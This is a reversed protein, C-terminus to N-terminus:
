TPGAATAIADTARTTTDPPQVDASSAAKQAIARRATSIALSAPGSSRRTTHSAATLSPVIRESRSIM